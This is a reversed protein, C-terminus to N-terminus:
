IRESNDLLANGERRIFIAVILSIITGGLFNSILKVPAFIKPQLFKKQMELGSDIFNQPLGAKVFNEEIAALQKNVLGSDIFAYLIYIFAAYIIAAYLSIVIGSSVAQGYTIFGNKYNERYTKILIFLSLIQILYLIYGQYVNFMLDLYYVILTYVVIILGLILGSSLNAKWISSHLAM